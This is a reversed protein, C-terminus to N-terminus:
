HSIDGSLFKPPSQSPSDDHWLLFLHTAPTSSYLITTETLAERHAPKPRQRIGGSARKRNCPHLRTRAADFTSVGARQRGRLSRGQNNPFTLLRWKMGTNKLSYDMVQRWDPGTLQFERQWWRKETCGQYRFAAIRSDISFMKKVMLSLARAIVAPRLIHLSWCSSLM